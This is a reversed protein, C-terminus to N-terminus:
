TEEVLYWNLGEVPTRVAVENEPAPVPRVPVAPLRDIPPLAAVAVLAVVAVLRAPPAFPENGYWVPEPAVVKRAAPVSPYMRVWADPTGVQAAAGTVPMEIVSSMEVLAARYMVKVSAVVPVSVPSSTEDVLSCYLGLVPVTVESITAAALPMTIM